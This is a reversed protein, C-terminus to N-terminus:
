GTTTTVTGDLIRLHAGPYLKCDVRCSLVVKIGRAEPYRQAEISVERKLPVLLNSMDGAIPRGSPLEEMEIVPMHRYWIRGDRVALVKSNNMVDDWLETYDSPNMYIRTAPNAILGDPSGSILKKIKKLMTSDTSLWGCTYSAADLQKVLGNLVARLVEKDTTGDETTDGNLLLYQLDKAFIKAVMEAVKEGDADMDELYSDQIVLPLVLEKVSYSVDTQTLNALTAVSQRGTAVTTGFGRTKYRAMATTPYTAVSENVKAVSCMSLLPTNQIVLDLFKETTQSSLLGLQRKNNYITPM